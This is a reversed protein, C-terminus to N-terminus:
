PPQSVYSFRSLGELTLALNTWERNSHHNLMAYVTTSGKFVNNADFNVLVLVYNQISSKISRTEYQNLSYLHQSDHLM